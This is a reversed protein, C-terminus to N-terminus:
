LEEASKDEEQAQELSSKVQKEYSKLDENWHAYAPDDRHDPLSFNEALYAGLHDTIITGGWYNMHSYNYLCETWEFGIEDVLHFYNVYPVGKQAAYDEVWNFYAQDNSLDHTVDSLESSEFYPLAVLVLQTDTEECLEVIKDLYRVPIPSPEAKQDPPLYQFEVGIIDQARTFNQACGRRVTDESWFDGQTLEKWRSHYLTFPLLFEEWQDMPVLDLIAPIRYRNPLWDLSQHMWSNSGMKKPHYLMYVDLVLVKPHYTEIAAKSTYYSVPIVEGSQANNFSTFGYEKWLQMPYAANNMHSSGAFIVDYQKDPNIQGALINQRGAKNQFAGNLLTLVCLLVMLIAATEILGKRTIVSQARPLRENMSCM